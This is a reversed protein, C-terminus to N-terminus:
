EQWCVPDLPLTIHIICDYYVAEEWQANKHKVPIKACKDSPNPNIFTKMRNYKQKQQTNGFIAENNCVYSGSGRM